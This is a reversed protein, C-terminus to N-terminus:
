SAAKLAPAKAAARADRAREASAKTILLFGGQMEGELEGKAVMAPITPRSVGIIAAAQSQNLLNSPKRKKTKPM